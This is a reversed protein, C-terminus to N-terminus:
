ISEYSGLIFHKVEIENQNEWLKLCITKDYESPTFYWYVELCGKHDNVAYIKNPNVYDILDFLFNELRVKRSTEKFREWLHEDKFIIHKIKDKTQKMMHNVYGNMGNINEM